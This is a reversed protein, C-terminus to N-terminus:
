SRSAWSGLAYQDLYRSVSGAPDLWSSVTFVAIWSALFVAPLAAVVSQGLYFAGLPQLGGAGDPHGPYVRVGGGAGTLVSSFTGYGVMRGLWRGAVYSALVRFVLEPLQLLADPELPSSLAYWVEPSSVLVTGAVVWGGVVAYRRGVAEVGDRLGGATIDPDPRAPPGPLGPLVLVDRDRLRVLVQELRTPLRSALEAGVVLTLVGTSFLLTGARPVPGAPLGLSFRILAM